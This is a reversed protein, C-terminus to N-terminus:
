TCDILSLSPMICTEVFMIGNLCVLCLLLLSLADEFSCMPNILMLTKQARKGGVGEVVWSLM